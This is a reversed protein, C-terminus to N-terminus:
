IPRACDNAPRTEYMYEDMVVQGVDYGRRRDERLEPWMSTLPIPRRALCTEKLFTTEKEYEVFDVALYAAMVFGDDRLARVDDISYWHLLDEKNSCSSFWHRGDKRYREDYGMPLVKTSCDLRCVESAWGGSADYWLGKSPDSSELRYLWRVKGSLIDRLYDPVMEWLELLREDQIEDPNIYRM